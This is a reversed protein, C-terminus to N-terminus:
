FFILFIFLLFCIQHAFPPVSTVVALIISKTIIKHLTTFKNPTTLEFTTLKKFHPSGILYQSYFQFEDYHRQKFYYQMVVFWHIIYPSNIPKHRSYVSKVEMLLSIRKFGVWWVFIPTSLLFTVFVSFLFHQRHLTM